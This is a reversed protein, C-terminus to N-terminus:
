RIEIGPIRSLVYIRVPMDEIESRLKYPLETEKLRVKRSKGIDWCIITRMQSPNHEHKKFHTLMSEGEVTIYHEPESVETEQLDVIIDGGSSGHELSEFKYFPLKNMGELKWLIAFTDYENEPSRHIRRGEFFVWEQDSSQLKRKRENLSQAGEIDKRKKSVALLNKWERSDEIDKMLAKLCKEFADREPTDNLASRSINMANQVDDCEAIICVNKASPVIGLGRRGGTYKELDMQFYPIGKVSLIIGISGTEQYVGFKYADLSYLGNLAVSVAKSTGKLTEAKEMNKIFVTGEPPTGKINMLIPFGVNLTEMRQGVSLTISPANPRSKTFGVFTRHLLYNKIEEFSFTKETHPPHGFVTIKTGKKQNPDPETEFIKPKPKKGSKLTEWPENIIVKYFPGKGIWTEIEVSRSQFALKSGLGKYGFEDSQLGAISSLGLALFRDLRGPCVVDGVYNMGIGNDQVQFVWGYDPHEYCVIKIETASVEHAASNSILERLLDLPHAREQVLQRILVAEHAFLDVEKAKAKEFASEM